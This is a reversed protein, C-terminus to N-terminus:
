SLYGSPVMANLLVADRCGCCTSGPSARAAGAASPWTRNREEWGLVNLSLNYTPVPEELSSRQFNPPFFFFRAPDSSDRNRCLRVSPTTQTRRWCCSDVPGDQRSDVTWTASTTRHQPSPKRPVSQARSYWDTMAQIGSGISVINSVTRMGEQGRKQIAEELM